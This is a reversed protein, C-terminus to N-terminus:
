SVSPRIRCHGRYRSHLPDPHPTNARGEVCGTRIQAHPGRCLTLFLEARVSFPSFRVREAVDNTTHQNQYGTQSVRTPTFSESGIVRDVAKSNVAYGRKYVIERATEVTRQYRKSWTWLNARRQGDVMTGLGKIYEKKILCRPCPCLGLNRVCALLVRKFTYLTLLFRFYVHVPSKSRQTIPSIHLSDLSYEVSSRILLASSSVLNM